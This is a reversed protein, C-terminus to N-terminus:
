AARARGTGKQRWPKKGTGSVEGRQKTCANGQRRNAQYALVTDRVAQIGRNGEFQPIQACEIERCSLGDSTYIKLQM